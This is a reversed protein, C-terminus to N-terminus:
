TSVASFAQLDQKLSSTSTISLKPPAPASGLNHMLNSILGLILSAAVYILVAGVVFTACGRGKRGIRKQSQARTRVGFKQQRSRFHPRSRAAHYTRGENGGRVRAVAASAADGGMLFQPSQPAALLSGLYNFVIEIESSNLVPPLARVADFLGNLGYVKAGGALVARMEPQGVLCLWAQVFKRHEPQLVAALSASQQLIGSGERFRSVGNQFMVGDRVEVRGSWNKTDIVLIGGPGVLVHDLNARSRGPWHVDNLLRWGHSQLATLKGAVLVEGVAGAEWAKQAREAQELQRKLRAAREAALRAQESARGGAEM